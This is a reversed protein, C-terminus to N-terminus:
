LQEFREEWVLNSRVAEDLIPKPDLAAAFIVGKLGVKGSALMHAGISAPIYTKFARNTSFYHYVYRAPRGGKEGKVLVDIGTFPGLALEREIIRKYIETQKFEDSLAFFHRCFEIPAVSIDGVKIPKMSALGLSGLYLVLDVFEKVTYSGKNVINKIGKIYRPITLPEPHACIRAEIAGFPEPWEIVEPDSGGPVYVIEGDKFIPVQQAFMGLRHGWGASTPTPTITGVWAIRVDDVRDLRDAAYRVWIDCLGPSSGLGALVTIGANKAADDFALVHPVAEADDLLDIYNVRADIAARILMPSYRFGPGTMNALVDAGKLVAAVSQQDDADAYVAEAKEGIDSAIRKIEDLRIDALIVKSIGERKVLDGAVGRGQNGAAGFIVARM